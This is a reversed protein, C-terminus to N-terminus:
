KVQQFVFILKLVVPLMVIEMIVPFIFLALPLVIKVSLKNAAEEARLLRKDRMEDSYIKIAEVIDGGLEISHRLVAVFVSAEDLALRDALSNLAEITSRGARMEAGMMELNMGLARHQKAIQGKVRDFAAEISLGAGVCVVLLDLFDPFILRYQQQLHGQRRSLFADPGLIGIFASVAVILMVIWSSTGPLFVRFLIFLASPLVVVTCVRAFVYYNIAHNGFYGARLLERRLKTRLASDVGFREETFHAAVLARLGRHGVGVSGDFGQAAAAAPLRRRLQAQGLYYQGAVFVIAAIAAFALLMILIFTIDVM